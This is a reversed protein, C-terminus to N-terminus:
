TSTSLGTERSDLAEDIARDVSQHNHDDWGKISSLEKAVTQADIDKFDTQNIAIDLSEVLADVIEMALDPHDEVLVRGAVGLGNPGAYSDHRVATISAECFETILYERLEESEQAIMRYSGPMTYYSALVGKKVAHEFVDRQATTITKVINIRKSDGERDLAQELLQVYFRSGNVAVGDFNENIALKFVERSFFVYNQFQGTIGQVWMYEPTTGDVFQEITESASVKYDTQPTSRLVKLTLKELHDIYQDFVSEQGNSTINRGIDTFHNSLTSMAAISKIEVLLALVNVIQLSYAPIYRSDNINSIESYIGKQFSLFYNVIETANDPNVEEDTKEERIELLYEIEKDILLDLWEGFQYIERQQIKNLIVLNIDVFYDDSDIGSIVNNRMKSIIQKNFNDPISKKFLELQNQPQIIRAVYSIFGLLYLLCVSLLVLSVTLSVQPLTEHYFIAIGINIIISPIFLIALGITYKSEVVSKAIKPSLNQSFYEFGVLTLSITIAFVTALIQANTLLVGTSTVLSTSWLDPSIFYSILSSLMIILFGVVLIKQENKM